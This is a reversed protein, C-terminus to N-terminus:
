EQSKNARAVREEATVDNVAVKQGRVVRHAGDRLIFTEELADTVFVKDDEFQDINVLKQKLVSEDGDIFVEFVTWLGQSNKRVASLPLWCGSRDNSFQFRAEVTQGLAFNVQTLDTVIKFTLGLSGPPSESFSKQKLQGEVSKEGILFYYNQDPSM